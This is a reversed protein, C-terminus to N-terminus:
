GHPRLQEGEGSFIYTVVSSCPSSVKKRKEQFSCPCTHARTEYGKKTRCDWWDTVLTGGNSRLLNGITWIGAHAIMPPRPCVCVSYHFSKKGNIKKYINNIPYEQSFFTDHDKSRNVTPRSQVISQVILIKASKRIRILNLPFNISSSM